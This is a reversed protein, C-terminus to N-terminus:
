RACMLIRVVYILFCFCRVMAVGASPGDKKQAGAPLHLHVDIASDKTSGGLGLVRASRLVDDLPSDVLGLEFAYRKVWSLALDGSEKIVDGLSGTLKLKGSGPLAITEVPMVGGEGAGTVVLGYVIGRRLERENENEDYRAIGLIKELDSAQVDRGYTPHSSSTSESPTSFDTDGGKDLYEAWEVAKYRVVAGIARELSRVGAESTYRTAIDLMAPETINIHETELGNATIQKPLLFRRAIHLKEDYTYGQVPDVDLLFFSLLLFTGSLQIIECRDLLPGSITELSNATCIFLVQSLDLPVNL